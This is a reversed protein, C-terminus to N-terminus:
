QTRRRPLESWEFAPPSSTTMAIVVANTARANKPVLVPDVGLAELESFDVTQWWASADFRIDLRVRSDHVSASARAAQVALLGQFQPVVDIDAIFRFTSLGRTVRGEFHASHGGPAASTPTPSTQTNLWTIAYDYTASRIEGSVGRVEGLRQENPSLADITASAAFEGVASSCLDASAAATACFYVPGFGVQAAELTIEYEGVRLPGPATAAAFIPYSVLEQGTDGCASAQLAIIVIPISRRM